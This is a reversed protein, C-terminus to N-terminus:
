VSQRQLLARRARWRTLKTSGTALASTTKSCRHPYGSSPPASPASAPASTDIGGGAGGPMSPDVSNSPADDSAPGADVLLLVDITRDDSEGLPPLCPQERPHHPAARIPPRARRRPFLRGPDIAAVAVRIAHGMAHARGGSQRCPPGAQLSLRSHKPPRGRRAWLRRARSRASGRRQGFTWWSRSPCMPRSM